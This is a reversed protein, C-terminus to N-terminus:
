SAVQLGEFNLAFAATGGQVDTPASPALTAVLCYLQSAHPDIVVPNTTSTFGLLAGQTGGAVSTNCAASGAVPALTLSLHSALGLTESTLTTTTVAASLGADGDNSATFTTAVSAGPVLGTIDMGDAQTVTLGVTGSTITTASIAVQDNWLAYSGGAALVAIMTGAAIAGASALMGRATIGAFPVLRRREVIPSAM